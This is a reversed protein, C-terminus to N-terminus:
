QYEIDYLDDAANMAAFYEEPDPNEGAGEFIVTANFKVGYDTVTNDFRDRAVMELTIEGCYEFTAVATSYLRSPRDSWVHIAITCADWTLLEDGDDGPECPRRM